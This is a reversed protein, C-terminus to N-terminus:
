APKQAALILFLPIRKRREFTSDDTFHSREPRAERLAQVVFGSSQLAGFYDEITRHYKVVESGLWKTVRKGTNFYDDVVWDQRLGEGRWIKDCSTIVPHEISFIFRGGPKLALHVKSLISVVDDIYHLALRSIVRDFASVPFDWLRIDANIIRARSDNLNASAAAFMLNSGDVGLYREAGNRLLDLGFRADGCGLDLFSQGKVDGLLGDIVPREITDNPNGIAQRHNMYAEFVAANDYFDPGEDSM